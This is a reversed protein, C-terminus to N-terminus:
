GGFLKPVGIVIAGVVVVFATVIILDMAIDYFRGLDKALGNELEVDPKRDAPAFRAAIRTTEDDHEM